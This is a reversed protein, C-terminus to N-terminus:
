EDIGRIGPLDPDEKMFNMVNEYDDKSVVVISRFYGIEENEEIIKKYNESLDCETTLIIKAKKM